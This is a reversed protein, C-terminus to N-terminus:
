NISIFVKERDNLVDVKLGRLACLCGLTAPIICLLPRGWGSWWLVAAAVLLFPLVILILLAIFPLIIFLPLWLRIKRGDDIIHVRMLYPPRNM